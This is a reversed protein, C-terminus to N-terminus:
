YKQPNNKIDHGLEIVKSWWSVPYDNLDILHQFDKSM